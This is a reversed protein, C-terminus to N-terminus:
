RLVVRVYERPRFKEFVNAEETLSEIPTETNTLQIVSDEFSITEVYERKVRENIYWASSFLSSFLCGAVFIKTKHM